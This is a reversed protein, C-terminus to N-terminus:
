GNGLVVVLSMRFTMITKITFNSKVSSEEHCRKFKYLSRKVVNQYAEILIRDDMQHTTVM